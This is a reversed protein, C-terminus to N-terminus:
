YVSQELVEFYKEFTKRTCAPNEIEIGDRYGRAICDQEMLDDKESLLRVKKHEVM